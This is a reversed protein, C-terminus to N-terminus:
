VRNQSSPTTSQNLDKFLVSRVYHDEKSDNNCSVDQSRCFFLVAPVTVYQDQAKGGFRCRRRSKRVNTKFQPDKIRSGAAYPGTLVTYCSDRRCCVSGTLM